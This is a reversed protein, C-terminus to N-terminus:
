GIAERSWFDQNQTKGDAGFCWLFFNLWGLKKAGCFACWIWILRWCKGGM